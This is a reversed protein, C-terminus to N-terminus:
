REQRYRHDIRMSLTASKQREASSGSLDTTLTGSGSIPWGSDLDVFHTFTGGMRGSAEIDETGPLQGEPMVLTEVLRAARRGEVNTVGDLTVRSDLVLPKSEGPPTMPFQREFSDGITLARSPFESMMMQALQEPVLEGQGGLPQRETRVESTSGNPQVRMRIGAGVVEPVERIRGNASFALRDYSGVMTASEEEHVELVRYRLRMDMNMRTTEGPAEAAFSMDHSYRRIEGPKFIYRLQIAQPSPAAPPLGPAAPDRRAAAASTAPVTPTPPATGPLLGCASTLLGLCGIIAGVLRYM